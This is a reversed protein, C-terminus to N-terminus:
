KLPKAPLRKLTKSVPDVTIGMNELTVTGLIPEVEPPGFVVQAVTQQGMLSVRAFGYEYEVPQGNVLEYVAKGEPEIGAEILRERPALCDVAGTDVLFDAEFPKGDGALSSVTVTVRSAM